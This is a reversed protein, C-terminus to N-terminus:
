LRKNCKTALKKWNIKCVYFGVLLNVLVHVAGVNMSWQIMSMRERAFCCKEGIQNLLMKVDFRFLFFDIYSFFWHLFVLVWLLLFLFFFFLVMAIFRKSVHLITHTSKQLRTLQLQIADGSLGFFVSHIYCTSSRHAMYVSEITYTYM